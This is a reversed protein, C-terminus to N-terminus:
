AQPNFKACEFHRCEIHQQRFSPANWALDKSTRPQGHFQPELGLPYSVARAAIQICRTDTVGFAPFLSEGYRPHTRNSGVNAPKLAHKRCKHRARALKTAPAAPKIADPDADVRNQAPSAFSRSNQQLAHRNNREGSCSSM